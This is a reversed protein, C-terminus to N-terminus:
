QDVKTFASTRHRPSRDRAKMSDHSTAVIRTDAPTSFSLVPDWCLHELTDCARTPAFIGSVQPPWRLDHEGFARPSMLRLHLQELASPLLRRIFAFQRTSIGSVEQRHRFTAFVVRWIALGKHALLRV